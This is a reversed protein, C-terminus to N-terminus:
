RHGDSVELILNEVAESYSGGESLSKVQKSAEEFLSELADNRSRLVEIRSNNLATSQASTHANARPPTTHRCDYIRLPLFGRPPSM